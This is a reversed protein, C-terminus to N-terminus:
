ELTLMELRVLTLIAYVHVFNRQDRACKIAILQKVSAALYINSKNIESDSGQVLNSFCVRKVQFMRACKIAILQKVSAALYINSKNIESDSGQVLNSFCVRKVQFM